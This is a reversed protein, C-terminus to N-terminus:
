PAGKTGHNKTERLLESLKGSIRHLVDCIPILACTQNPLEMEETSKSKGFKYLPGGSVKQSCLAVIWKDNSPWLLAYVNWEEPSDEEGVREV